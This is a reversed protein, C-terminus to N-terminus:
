DDIEDSLESGSIEQDYISWDQNPFSAHGWSPGSASDVKMPVKGHLKDSITSMDGMIHRAELKVREMDRPLFWDLSDHVQLILGHEGRTESELFNNVEVMKQKVIDACSGQIVRSSGQYAMNRNPFRQRRGLITNVYGRSRGVSQCRRLFDKVSPFEQDYWKRLEEAEAVSIGLAAALKEAGMWYLMGLNLRKGTPDREVGLKTAVTSHMDVNNRYNEIIVADNVYTAFVRYEQQSYDNTDWETGPEPVFISRFIPALIKDRKPVQQLNPDNCSLRGTHTGYEGDFMQNFNCHIRGNHIKEEIAGKIFTSQLNTLKRVNIIARGTPLKELFKETFSLNGIATKPMDDYNLGDSENLVTAVQKPSRPNFNSPLLAQAAALKRDVFTKLRDVADPDIPVGRREMKFLVPILDCEVRHVRELQQYEIIEGQVLYCFFTADGDAIAYEIAVEDNAPLRWYNAMQKKDAPGGFKAAMYEYIYTAKKTQVQYEKSINDLGYGGQLHENILTANIQTDEMQANPFFIGDNACMHLDFKLNHGILKIKKDAWSKVWEIIRRPDLNPGCEHRIPYYHKSNITKGDPVHTVVFGVIHCTKWDVGNTETDLVVTDGDQINPFNLM